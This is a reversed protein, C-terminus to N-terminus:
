EENSDYVSVDKSFDASIGNALETMKDFPSEYESGKGGKSKLRCLKLAFRFIRSNACIDCIKSIEVAKEVSSRYNETLLEKSKRENELRHETGKNKETMLYLRDNVDQWKAVELKYMETMSYLRDNLDQSHVKLADLENSMATHDASLKNHVVRLERLDSYMGGVVEELTSADNNKYSEKTYVLIIQKGAWYTGPMVSCDVVRFYSIYSDGIHIPFSKCEFRNIHEAIGMDDEFPLILVTYKSSAECMRKMIDEPYELHELTNSSLIVEAKTLEKYVDKVEFSCYDFAKNASEIASESFDQGIFKCKPFKNALYATGEGEACGIDIVTWNNKNLDDILFQPFVEYAVKSFFESQSGGGNKKWDNEAFRQEWYDHTNVNDLEKYEM